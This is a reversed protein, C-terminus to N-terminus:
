ADHFNHRVMGKCYHYYQKGNHWVMGACYHYYQKENHRVLPSADHTHHGVYHFNTRCSAM